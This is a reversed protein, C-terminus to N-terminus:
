GLKEECMQRYGCRRSRAAMEHSRQVEARREDIRMDAVLDLLASELERTYDVPELSQPRVRKVNWLHFFEHASVAPLDAPSGVWIATSDAHEMGGGSGDATKGIHFIFLYEDYPAGGMLRTQYGVIRRLPAAVQDRSWGDGHIAVRVPPRTGELQFEEFTGVEVPADVLTDYSAATIVFAAGTAEAQDPVQRLAHPEPAASTAGVAPWPQLAVAVRWGQPLDYFGVRTDEGRREPVFFLITALNVFAHESNLQSSFPGPEDWHAAYRLVVTGNGTVQWTQKDVKRIALPQGRGDTARVGQLHYAFDRIQYLANWAPLQVAVENKVNPITMTVRFLHLEPHATSVAYQITAHAPTVGLLLAFLLSHFRRRTGLTM